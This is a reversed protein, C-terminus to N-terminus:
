AGNQQLNGKQFYKKTPIFNVERENVEIIDRVYFRVSINLKEQNFPNGPVYEKRYKLHDFKIQTCYNEDSEDECDMKKDCRKALSM